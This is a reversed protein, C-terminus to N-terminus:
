HVYRNCYTYGDDRGEGGRGGGERGVRGREGEGEPCAVYSFYVVNLDLLVLVLKICLPCICLENAIDSKSPM